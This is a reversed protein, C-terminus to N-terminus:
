SRKLQVTRLDSLQWKWESLSGRVQADTPRKFEDASGFPVVFVVEVSAVQRQKVVETILKVFYDLKLSHTAGRTVQVFRLCNELV